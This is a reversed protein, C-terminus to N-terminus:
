AFIIAFLAVVGFIFTSAISIIQYAEQENHALRNAKESLMSHMFVCFSGIFLFLMIGAKIWGKGVYEYLIFWFIIRGLDSKAFDNSEVNITHATEKIVEGIAKGLESWKKVNEVNKDTIVQESARQAEIIKTATQPDLDKLDVVVRTDQAWLMVPFMVILIGLLIRKKM